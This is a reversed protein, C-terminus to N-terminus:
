LYLNYLKTRMPTHTGIENEGAALPTNIDTPMTPETITSGM